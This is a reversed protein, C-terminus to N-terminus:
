ELRDTMERLHLHPSLKNDGENKKQESNSTRTSVVLPFNRRLHKVSPQSFFSEASDTRRDDANKLHCSGTHCVPWEEAKPLRM